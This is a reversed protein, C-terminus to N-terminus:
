KKYRSSPTKPNYAINVIKYDIGNKNINTNKEVDLYYESVLVIYRCKKLEIAALSGKSYAQCQKIAQDVKEGKESEKRVVKWETLVLGDISRYLPNNEDVKGALVLDTREGAADIKFGWIKHLLLHAGGLKEFGLENKTNIWANRINEDAVLLRQLHNFAIEVSKIIFEQSDKLHYTMENELLSLNVLIKIVMNANKSDKRLSEVKERTLSFFDSLIKRSEDSLSKKYDNDFNKLSDYTNIANDGIDKSIGYPDIKGMNSINYFFASSNLLSKIKESILNWDSFINSM